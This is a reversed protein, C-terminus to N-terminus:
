ESDETETEKEEDREGEQDAPANVVIDATVKFDRLIDM